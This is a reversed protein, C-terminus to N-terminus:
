ESRHAEWVISLSLGGVRLQYRARAAGTPTTEVEVCPLFTMWFSTPNAEGDPEEEEEAGIGIEAEGPAVALRALAEEAQLAYRCGPCAERAQEYYKAARAFEKREELLGADRYLRAAREIKRLNDLVSAALEQPEGTVMASRAALAAQRLHPCTFSSEPEPDETAGLCMVTEDLEPYREAGATTAARAPLVLLVTTGVSGTEAEPEAVAPVSLVVDPGTTECRVHADVPLGPPKAAILALGAVACLWRLRAALNSHTM